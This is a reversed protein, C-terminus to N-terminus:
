AHTSAQRQCQRCEMPVMITKADFSRCNDCWLVTVSAEFMGLQAWYMKSVMHVIHLGTDYQKALEREVYDWLLITGDVAATYVQLCHWLRLHKLLM